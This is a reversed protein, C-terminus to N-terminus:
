RKRKPNAGVGDIWNHMEPFVSSNKRSTYKNDHAESEERCDTFVLQSLGFVLLTEVMVVIGIIIPNIVPNQKVWHLIAQQYEIFFWLTGAFVLTGILMLLNALWEHQQCCRRMHKCLNIMTGGPRGCKPQCDNDIIRFFLLMM